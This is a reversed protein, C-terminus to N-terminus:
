AGAPNERVPTAQNLSCFNGWVNEDLFNQICDTVAKIYNNIVLPADQSQVQSVIGYTPGASSEFSDIVNGGIVSGYNKAVGGSISIGTTKATIKNNAIMTGLIQKYASNNGATPGHQIGYTFQCGSGYFTSITNNSISSYDCKVVTTDNTPSGLQIGAVSGAARGCIFCNEIASYGMYTPMIAAYETNTTSPSMFIMNRFASDTMSGTYSYSSAPRISALHSAGGGTQIGTIEVNTMTGTLSEVYTSPFVVIRDGWDYGRVQTARHAIQTSLAHQITAFAKRPTLGDNGNSGSRGCVYWTTGYCESGIANTIKAGGFDYASSQADWQLPSYRLNTGM